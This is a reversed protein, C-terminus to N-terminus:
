PIVSAASEGISEPFPRGLRLYGMKAKELQERSLHQECRALFETLGPVLISVRFKWGDKACVTFWSAQKGNENSYSVEQVDDWHLFRRRNWPSRCQLGASSVTLSFRTADWLAALGTVAIGLAIGFASLLEVRTKPTSDTLAWAAFVFPVPGFILPQILTLWGHRFRLDGTRPDITPRGRKAVRLQTGLFEPFKEAEPALETKEPEYVGPIWQPGGPKKTDRYSSQGCHFCTGRLMPTTLLTRKQCVPCKAPLVGSTLWFLLGFIVVFALFGAFWLQGKTLAFANLFILVFFFAIAPILLATFFFWYCVRGFWEAFTGRFFSVTLIALVVPVHIQRVAPNIMTLVGSDFDRFAWRLIRDIILTLFIVTIIKVISIVTLRSM